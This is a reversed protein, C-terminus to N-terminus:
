VIFAIVFYLFFDSLKQKLTTRVVTNKHVNKNKQLPIIYFLEYVLKQLIANKVEYISNNNLVSNM